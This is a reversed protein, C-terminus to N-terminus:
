SQVEMRTLRVLDDLAYVNLPDVMAVTLHNDKQFLPVLQYRRAVTEPVLKVVEPDVLVHSLVMHRIGMQRGFVKIFDAETGLGLSKLVVGLRDGRRKQEELARGLQEENILGEAILMEGLKKKKQLVPKDM